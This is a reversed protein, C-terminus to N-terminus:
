NIKIIKRQHKQRQDQILLLYPGAELERTSIKHETGTSQINKVTRGMMDIVTFDVSGSSSPLRIFLEDRVPNPYVSLEKDVSMETQTILYTFDASRVTCGNVTTTVAYVGYELTNYDISSSTAGPILVNNEYWQLTGASSTSLQTGNSIIIPISPCTNYEGYGTRNELGLYYFAGSIYVKNDSATLTNIDYFGDSNSGADPKWSKLSGTAASFASLGPRPQNAVSDYYGGVYLDSGSIAIDRVAGNNFTPNWATALNSTLNLAAIRFLRVSGGVGNAFEGVVYALNGAVRIKDVMGNSPPAWPLVAGSTADVAAINGRTQNGLLSFLGAAYVTNGVIDISNVVQDTTKSDGVIPNWNTPLGSTLDVAALGPRTSTNIVLFKGGLFLINDKIKMTYVSVAPDTPGLGFVQPNWPLIQGTALDIAALNRRPTKNIAVFQGGIYLINDKVAITNVVGGNLDLQFPWVQDTADDFLAFGENRSVWNVGNMYGGMFVSTPTANISMLSENPSPAWNQLVGTAVDVAAVNARPLANVSDFYGAFYLTNGAISMDYVYDFGDLVPNWPLVGTTATPVAAISIRAVANITSFSGGIFLTTGSLIVDEVYGTGNTNATWATAAGIPSALSLRAVGIRPQGGANNFNGGIFITNGTVDIATAKVYASFINTIVPNWTTPSGTTPSLAALGTRAASGINTFYGGVYILGSVSHVEISEVGGNANPNWTTLNGTTIDFSAIHNRTQGAIDNFYGGVYLTTGSVTLSSPSNDPNPKWTRDVTKDSKIHALNLIKVTDVADFYGGIYWGGSGDSATVYVDGNVKPMSADVTGTTADTLVASGTYPGVETFGGSLLTYGNSHELKGIGSNSIWNETRHVESQAFVNLTFLLGASFFSLRKSLLTSFIM